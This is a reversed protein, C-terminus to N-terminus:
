KKKKKSTFPTKNEFWMKKFKKAPLLHKIKLDCM